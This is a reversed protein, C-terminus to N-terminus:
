KLKTKPKAKPKAKRGLLLFFTFMSVSDFYVDGSNKVTAWTSASFALLLALAVPVDMNLHRNRLSRYASYFFPQASFLIVPTAMLLSVWRLFGQWYPSMDEGGAYLAIAVMGVQMMGLGALGLRMLATRSEKERQKQSERNQAPSPQYGIGDLATFIESLAISGKEWRVFAQRTSANVRVSELGPLRSLQNEILWACAACSVGGVALKATQLSEDDFVFDKQVEPLDYVAYNNPKEAAKVSPQERYQYYQGLGSGYITETIAQCGPCCFQRNVGNIESSFDPLAPLGCHYCDSM